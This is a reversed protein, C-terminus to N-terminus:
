VGKREEPVRSKKDVQRPIPERVVMHGTRTQKKKREGYHEDGNIISQKLKLNTNLKLKNKNLM